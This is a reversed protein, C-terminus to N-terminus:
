RLELSAEAILENYLETGLPADIGPFDAFLVGFDIEVSAFAAILNMIKAAFDPKQVLAGHGIMVIGTKSFNSLPQQPM